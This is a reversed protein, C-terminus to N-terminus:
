LHADSVNSVLANVSPGIIDLIPAPFVGLILTLVVLPFFIWKEQITLDSIQKLSEKILDGFIIRRYLWLGYAASLVVGFAAGFATWTSVQFVGLLTLFEGIFGSTGPLGINAM